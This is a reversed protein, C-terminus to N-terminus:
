NCLAPSHPIIVIILSPCRGQDLFVAKLVVTSSLTQDLENPGFALIVVLEQVTKKFSGKRTAVTTQLATSGRSSLIEKEEGAWGLQSWSSGGLPSEARQM